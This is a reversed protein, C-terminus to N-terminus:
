PTVTTFFLWHVIFMATVFTVKGVNTSSSKQFNTTCHIVFTM